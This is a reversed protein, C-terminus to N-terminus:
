DHGRIATTLDESPEIRRPKPRPKIRLGKLWLKAAEFHIATMVKISMLPMRCFAKFLELDDLPGAIGDQYANLLAGDTTKLSVGVFVRDDPHTVRFAYDGSVDNFPSVYLQKATGHFALQGPCVHCPLVYCQRGGFTNNVEYVIAVVDDATDLCYYVTLPNFVYGLVRPYCLMRVRSIPTNIGAAAVKALVWTKLGTAAGEGHDREYVSMLNPRNISLLKLRDLASLEELDVLVSFARYRLAHRRPRYRRHVVDMRCLKSRLTTM